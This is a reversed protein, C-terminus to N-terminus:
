IKLTHALFLEYDFVNFASVMESASLLERL